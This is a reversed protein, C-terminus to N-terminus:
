NVPCCQNEISFSDKINKLKSILIDESQQGLEIAIIILKHYNVNELDVFNILDLLCDRYVQKNDKDCKFYLRIISSAGYSQSLKNRMTLNCILEIASFHGLESLAEAALSRINTHKYNNSHIKYNLAKILGDIDKNYRLKIIDPTFSFM